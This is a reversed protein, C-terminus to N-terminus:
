CSGDLCGATSNFAAALQERFAIAALVVVGVSIVTVLLGYESLTQGEQGSFRIRLRQLETLVRLFAESLLHMKNGRVDLFSDLAGDTVIQQRIQLEPPHCERGGITDAM